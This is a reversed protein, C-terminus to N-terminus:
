SGERGALNVLQKSVRRRYADALEPTASHFLGIAQWVDGGSSSLGESFIEAAVRSNAYPDLMAEISEFRHAHFRYEIQFLGVGLQSAERRVADLLATRAEQRTAFYHPKKDISLTWPWPRYDATMMSQGSETLAIAYFLRSGVRAEDAATQYGAPVPATQALCMPPLVFLVALFIRAFRIPSPHRFHTTAHSIM